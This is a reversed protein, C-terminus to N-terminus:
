DQYVFNVAYDFKDASFESTHLNSWQLQPVAVRTLNNFLPDAIPFGSSNVVSLLVNSKGAVAAQDLLRNVDRFDPYFSKLDLLQEFAFRSDHRLGSELLRQSSVYLYEAAKRKAALREKEYDLLEIGAYRNEKKIQLPLLHDIKSQRYTLDDYIAFLKPYDSPNGELSIARIDRLDKAEMRNYAKELALIAKQNNPRKNLKRVSKTFALEDDGRKLAPNYVNCSSFVLAVILGIIATSNRALIAKM